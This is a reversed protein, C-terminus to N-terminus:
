PALARVWAVIARQIATYVVAQAAPDKRSLKFSHDGQPVVHLAPPPQLTQVIPTLEDPTGFADRAGQVFLMPRAIAPLHKDRRELPRGPPHLPYGLLVLGAIPLSADAAAVQSAIRGGMSKGGICLLRRASEVERVVVAMVRRYCAELVPARDPIKRRQEIYPFNFTVVDLGLDSLADAFDVMFTSRQGAGAGHALILTGATDSVEAFNGRHRVGDYVLAQTSAGAELAITLESPSKL